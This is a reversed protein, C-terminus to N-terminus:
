NFKCNAMVELGAALVVEILVEETLTGSVLELCVNVIESDEPVNYSPQSFQFEAVIQTFLVTKGNICNITM